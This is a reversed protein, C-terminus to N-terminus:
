GDSYRFHEIHELIEYVKGLPGRFADTPILIEPKWPSVTAKVVIQQVFGVPEGVLQFLFCFNSSFCFLVYTICM